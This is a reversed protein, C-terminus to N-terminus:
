YSLTMLMKRPTRPAAASVCRGAAAARKQGTNKTTESNASRCAAGPCRAIFDVLTM